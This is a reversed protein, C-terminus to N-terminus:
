NRNGIRQGKQQRRRWRGGGYYIIIVVIILRAKGMVKSRNGKTIELSVLLGVVVVVVLAFCRLGPVAVLLLLIALM